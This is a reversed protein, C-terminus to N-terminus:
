HRGRLGVHGGRLVGGLRQLRLARPHGRGARRGAPARRALMAAVRASTTTPAPCSARAGSTPSRRPRASRWSCRRARARAAARAALRARRARPRPLRPRDLRPWSRGAEVKEPYRRAYWRVLTFDFALGGHAADHHAVICVTRERTRTARRPRRREVDPAHAPPAPDLLRAVPRGRGLDRIRQRGGVLRRAPVGARAARGGRRRRQAPGDAVLLHRARAGGRGRGAVGIERLEAAIWEAARREGESASPREWSTLHELTRRLDDRMPCRQGSAPVTRPRIGASGSQM